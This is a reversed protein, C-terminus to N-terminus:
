HKLSCEHESISSKLESLHKLNGNYFTRASESRTQLSGDLCLSYADDYRSLMTLIDIAKMRYTDNSPEMRAAKVYCDAAQGPKSLAESAKGKIYLDFASADHLNEIQALAEKPMSQQLLAYSLYRRATQNDGHTRIEQILTRTAGAFDNRSMQLYAQSLLKDSVNTQWAPAPLTSFVLVCGATFLQMNRKRIGIAFNTM